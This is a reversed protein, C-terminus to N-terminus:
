LKITRENEWLARRSDVEVKCTELETGQVKTTGLLVLGLVGNLSRDLAVGDGLLMGCLSLALLISSGVCCVGLWRSLSWNVAEIGSVLVMEEGIWFFEVGLDWVGVWVGSIHYWGHGVEWSERTISFSIWTESLWHVVVIGVAVLVGTSSRWSALGLFESGFVIAISCLGRIAVGLKSLLFAALTSLRGQALLSSGM